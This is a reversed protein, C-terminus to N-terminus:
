GLARRGSKEARVDVQVLRTFREEEHRAEDAGRVVGPWLPDTPVPQPNGGLAAQEQWASFAAVWTEMARATRVHAAILEPSGYIELQALVVDAEVEHRRQERAEPLLGTRLVEARFRQGRKVSTLAEEYVAARREWIRGERERARAGRQVLWSSSLSALAGVTTGIVTAEVPSLHM